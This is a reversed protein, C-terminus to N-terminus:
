RYKVVNYDKKEIKDIRRCGVVDLFYSELVSQTIAFGSETAKVENFIRISM